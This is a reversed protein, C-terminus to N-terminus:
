ARRGDAGVVRDLFGLAYGAPRAHVHSGVRRMWALEDEDLPGRDLAAMAEDLEAGNAPGALSVHVNPNTLVFRYCDSARPTPEGKPTKRPDLLSGWRTATFGLVGPNRDGLRAFVEREAGPHAANYRVMLADIGPEKLAQEFCPRRHSSMMLHKVKGRERLELAKDIIRRPPVDQWWSLVLLDVYDTGLARLARDIGIGMVSAVRTYTQVAIVMDKRHTRAVNRVGRGFSTKRLMGWFFFNIGREWAREIDLDGVGYSSGLALPTVRLGTEGFTVQDWSSTM